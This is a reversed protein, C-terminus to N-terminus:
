REGNRITDEFKEMFVKSLEIAKEMMEDDNGHLTNSKFSVFLDSATKHRMMLLRLAIDTM